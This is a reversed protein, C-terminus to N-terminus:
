VETLGRIMQLRQNPPSCIFVRHLLCEVVPRLSPSAGLLKTLELVIAYVIKCQHESLIIEESNKKKWFGSKENSQKEIQGIYNLLTSTLKPILKQFHENAVIERPITAILTCLCQLVLGIESGSEGPDRCHLTYNVSDM